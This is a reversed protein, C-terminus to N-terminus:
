LSFAMTQVYPMQDSAAEHVVAVWYKFFHNATSHLCYVISISNKLDQSVFFQSIAKDESLM